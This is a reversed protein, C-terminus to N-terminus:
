ETTGFLSAAPAPASAAAASAAPADPVAGSAATSAVAVVARRVEISGRLFAGEEITVRAGAIDGIVVASKRLELRDTAVLNGEVRGAVIINKAEVNAKVEGQPGVSLSNEALHIVGDVQGDVLLDSSGSIDGRIIVGTSIVSSLATQPQM